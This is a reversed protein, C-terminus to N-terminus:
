FDNGCMKQCHKEINEEHEAFTHAYYIVGNDGAIFYHYDGAAPEAVARLASYNFNSIPGPPLGGYLRTNYPSDLSVSPKVGLKKAAYHFTVDSELKAGEKFRKLFVQAIQPQAAPDSAEKQIISALTIAQYLTLGQQKFKETLGDQQIKQSLAAFDREFVSQLSASSEVEFTEPYIYGELDSSVPKDSLLPSNYTATFASTIEKDSYGYKKLDSRIESLTRGPIIRLNFLDTKGGELHAVIDDVSMSSSLAYTGAQLKSQSKTQKVYWEFATASRILGRKSLNRAIVALGDGQEVVFRVSQQSQTTVPRLEQAYWYSVGSWVCVLLVLTIATAIAAWQIKTFHHVFIIGNEHRKFELVLRWITGWYLLLRM